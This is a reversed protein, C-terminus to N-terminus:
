EKPPEPPQHPKFLNDALSSNVPVNIAGFTAEYRAINEM